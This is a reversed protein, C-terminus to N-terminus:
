HFPGQAEGQLSGPPGGQARDLNWWQTPALVKGKDAVARLANIAAEKSAVGAFGIYSLEGPASEWILSGGDQEGILAEYFPHPYFFAPNGRVFGAPKASGDFVWGEFAGGRLVGTWVQGNGLTDVQGLDVTDYLMEHIVWPSSTTTAAVTFGDLPSLRPKGSEVTVHAALDALTSQGLDSARIVMSWPGQALSPCDWHEIAKARVRLPDGLALAGMVVPCRSWDGDITTDPEPTPLTGSTTTPAIATAPRPPPDPATLQGFPVAVLVAGGLPGVLTLGSSRTPRDDAGNVENPESM